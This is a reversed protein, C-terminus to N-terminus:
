SSYTSTKSPTPISSTTLQHDQLTVKGQSVLEPCKDQWYKTTENEIVQSLDQVVYHLHPFKNAIQMTLTGTSGGVDVVVSDEPYSACDVASTFLRDTFDAAAMAKMTTAFRNRRLENGPQEFWQWMDNVKFAATFPSSALQPNQIWSSM